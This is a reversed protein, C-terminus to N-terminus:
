FTTKNGFIDTNPERPITFSTGLPTETGTVIKGEPLTIYPATGMGSSRVDFSNSGVTVYSGFPSNKAIYSKDSM